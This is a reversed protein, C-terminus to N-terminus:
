VALSRLEVGVVGYWLGMSAYQADFARERMATWAYM